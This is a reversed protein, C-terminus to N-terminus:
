NILIKQYREALSIFSRLVYSLKTPVVGRLILAYMSFTCCNEDRSSDTGSLIVHETGVRLTSLFLATPLTPKAVPM